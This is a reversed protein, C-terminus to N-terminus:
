VSTLPLSISRMYILGSSSSAMRSTALSGQTNWFSMPLMAGLM